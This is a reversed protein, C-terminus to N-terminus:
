VCSWIEEAEREEGVEGGCRCFIFLLLSKGIISRVVIGKM